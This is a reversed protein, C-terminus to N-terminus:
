FGAEVNFTNQPSHCLKLISEESCSIAPLREPVLFAHPPTLRVGLFELVHMIGDMHKLRIM